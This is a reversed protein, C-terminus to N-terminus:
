RGGGAMAGFVLSLNARWSSEFLAPWDAVLLALLVLSMLMKVPFGLSLLQMQAQLRGLLGVALDTLLLLAFVPLALRLTLDFMAGGLAPLEAWQEPWIGSGPPWASLSRGLARVVARDLGTGLLMLGAMLQAAIPLVGSDAESTPDIASAYAYGAQLAIAQAACVFAESVYGVALGIGLGLSAEVVMASIFYGATVEAPVQPWAPKLAATLALALVLRAAGPGHHLGPLPILSVLGSMRALVLLFPVGPLLSDATEAPM